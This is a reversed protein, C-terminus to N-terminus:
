STTSTLKLGKPIYILTAILLNWKNKDGKLKTAFNVPNNTMASELDSLFIVFDNLGFKGNPLNNSDRRTTLCTLAYILSKIIIINNDIGVLQYNYSFM